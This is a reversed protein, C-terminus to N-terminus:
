IGLINLSKFKKKIIIFNNKKKKTNLICVSSVNLLEQESHEILKSYKYINSELNIFKENDLNKLKTVYKIEDNIRSHLSTLHENNEMEKISEKKIKEIQSQLNQLSERM